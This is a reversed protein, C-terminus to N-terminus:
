GVRRFVAPLYELLTAHGEFKVDVTGSAAQVGVVRGKAHRWIGLLEALDLRAFMVADGQRIGEAIM